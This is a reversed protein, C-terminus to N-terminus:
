QRVEILVKAILDKSPLTSIIKIYLIDKNNNASESCEEGNSNRM